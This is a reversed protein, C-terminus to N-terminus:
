KWILRVIGWVVLALIAASLGTLAPHFGMFSGIWGGLGGGIAGVIGGRIASETKEEMKQEGGKM